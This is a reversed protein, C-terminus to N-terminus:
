FQSDHDLNKKVSAEKLPKPLELMIKLGKLNNSGENQPNLSSWCTEAKQFIDKLYLSMKPKEFPRDYYQSEHNLCMMTSLSLSLSLSLSPSVQNSEFLDKWWDMIGDEEVKRSLLVIVISYLMNSCGEKCECIPYLANCQGIEFDLFSGILIAKKIYMWRSLLIRQPLPTEM